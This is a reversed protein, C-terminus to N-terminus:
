KQRVLHIFPVQKNAKTTQHIVNDNIMSDSIIIRAEGYQEMSTKFSEITHAIFEFINKMIMDGQTM